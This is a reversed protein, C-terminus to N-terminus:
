GGSGCCPTGPPTEPLKLRDDTLSRKADVPAQKPPMRRSRFVGDAERQGRRLAWEFAAAIRVPSLFTRDKKIEHVVFDEAICCLGEGGVGEERLRGMLFDVQDLEPSVVMGAWWAVPARSAKRDPDFLMEPDFWVCAWGTHTGPDIAFVRPFMVLDEPDVSDGVEPAGCRCRSTRCSCEFIPQLLTPKMMIAM